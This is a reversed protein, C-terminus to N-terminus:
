FFDVFGKQIFTNNYPEIEVMRQVPLLAPESEWVAAKLGSQYFCQCIIVGCLVILLFNLFHITHTLIHDFAKSHSFGVACSTKIRTLSRVRLIGVKFDRGFVM